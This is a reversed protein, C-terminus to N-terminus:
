GPGGSVKMQVDYCGSGATGTERVQLWVDTTGTGDVRTWAGTAVSRSGVAAPRWGDSELQSGYHRLVDEAPMDAAVMTGTGMSSNMRSTQSFCRGSSRGRGGPPAYLTPFPPERVARFVPRQHDCPGAGDRYHLFLDTPEAGRSSQQIQLQAGDRCLIIPLDAAADVFGRRNVTELPKWGHSALGRTYLARLSEPAASSKALVLVGSGMVVSGLVRTGPPVYFNPGLDDPVRGDLLRVNGGDYRFAYRLIAQTLENPAVSSQQASASRPPQVVHLACAALFAVATTSWTRTRSM